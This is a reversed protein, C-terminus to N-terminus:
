RAREEQAYRLRGREQGCGLAHLVTDLARQDFAKRLPPLHGQQDKGQGPHRPNHEPHIAPIGGFQRPAHAQQQRPQQLWQWPPPHRPALLGLALLLLVLLRRLRAGPSSSATFNMPSLLPWSTAPAGADVMPRVAAARLRLEPALGSSGLPTAAEPGAAGHRVAGALM